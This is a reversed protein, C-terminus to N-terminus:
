RKHFCDQKRAIAYQLKERMDAPMTEALATWIEPRYRIIMRNPSIRNAEMLNQPALEKKDTSFMLLVGGAWSFSYGLTGFTHIERWPITYGGGLPLFCHIGDEDLAFRLLLRLLLGNKWLGTLVFIWPGILIALLQFVAPDFIDLLFKKIFFVSLGGSLVCFLGLMGPLFLTTYRDYIGFRIVHTKKM